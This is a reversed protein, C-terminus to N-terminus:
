PPSSPSVPRLPPGRLISSIGGYYGYTVLESTVGYRVMGLHVQVFGTLILAGGLFMHLWAQAARPPRSSRRGAGSSAHSLHSWLGLLDQVIVAGVFCFGIVKHAFVENSGGKRQMALVAAGLALLTLPTVLYGQVKFHWPFRTWTQGPKGRAYRACLVGCPAVVTWTLGACVKIPALPPDIPETSETFAVSLDLYTAGMATLAHQTIEADQAPSKPNEAGYAYVMPQNRARQLQYASGKGEYEDGLRLAREFTVVARSEKGEKSSLSPVIRLSGSADWAPDASHPQGVLTPMVTSPATRHSLTWTGDANPWCVVLDADTMATGTGWGIWGVADRRGDYECSVLVKEENAVVTLTYAVTKLTQGTIAGGGDLYKILDAQSPAAAALAFSSFLRIYTRVLSTCRLSGRSPSM